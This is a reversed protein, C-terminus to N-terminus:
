RELRDRIEFFTDANSLSRHKLPRRQKGAPTIEGDDDDEDDNGGMVVAGNSNKKTPNIILSTPPNPLNLRERNEDNEINSCHNDRDTLAAPGCGEGAASGSSLNDSVATDVPKPNEVNFSSLKVTMSRQFLPTYARLNSDGNWSGMRNYGFKSRPLPSPPTQFKPKPPERVIGQELDARKMAALKKMSEIFILLPDDMDQLKSQFEQDQARRDREVLQNRYKTSMVHRSSVPTGPISLDRKDFESENESDDDCNNAGRRGYRFPGETRSYGPLSRRAPTNRQFRSMAKDLTDTAPTAADTDVANLFRFKASRNRRAISYKSSHVASEIPTTDHASDSSMRQRRRPARGIRHSGDFNDM